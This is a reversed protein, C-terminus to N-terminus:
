FDKETKNTGNLENYLKIADKTDRGTRKLDKIDGELMAPYQKYVDKLFQTDQLNAPVVGTDRFQKSLIQWKQKDLDSMNKEAQQQGYDSVANAVNSSLSSLIGKERLAVDQNYRDINAFNHASISQDNLMKTNELQNETNEKTTYASNKASMTNVDAAMKNVRAIASSSTNADIDEKSGRNIRDIAALQDNIDFKTNLPAANIKNPIPVKPSALTTALNFMNDVYPAISAFGNGKNNAPSNNSNMNSPEVGEVKPTPTYSKELTNKNIIDNISKMIDKTTPNYTDIPNQKERIYYPNQSNDATFQGNNNPMGWALNQTETPYLQVEPYPDTEGGNPYRMAMGGKKFGVIFNKLMNEDTVQQNNHLTDVVTNNDLIYQGYKDTAYPNLRFDLAGKYYTGKSNEENADVGTHHMPVWYQSTYQGIWGDVDSLSQPAHSRNIKTGLTPSNYIDNYYQQMKKVYSDKEYKFNPNSKTYETWIDNSLNGQSRDLKTRDVNNDTLYKNYYSILGTWDQIEQRTPVTGGDPYMGIKMGDKAFGAMGGYNGNMSQQTQFLKEILFDSNMMEKEFTDSLIPDIIKDNINEKRDGYKKMTKQKDKLLKAHREAFTEKTGPVKLSDSFIKNGDVTEGGEAEIINGQGTAIKVGGKDHQKGVIVGENEGTVSPVITGGQLPKMRQQMEQPVAMGGYNFYSSFNTGQTPYQNLYAKDQTIQQDRAMKEKEKRKEKESFGDIVSSILGGVVPIQSALGSFVGAGDVKGGAIGETIAPSVANSFAGFLGGGAGGLMDGMGGGGGSKAGELAGAASSKESAQQLIKGTKPDILNGYKDYLEKEYIADGGTGFEPTKSSNTLYTNFTKDLYEDYKKDQKDFSGFAFRNAYDQMEENNTFTVAGHKQLDAVDINKGDYNVFYKGRSNDVNFPQQRNKKSKSM